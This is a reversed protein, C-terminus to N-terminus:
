VPSVAQQIERLAVEMAEAETSASVIKAGPACYIKGPRWNEARTTFRYTGSRPLKYVVSEKVDVLYLAVRPKVNFLGGIKQLAQVIM